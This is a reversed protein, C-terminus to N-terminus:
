GIALAARAYAAESFLLPMNGLLGPNQRADGAESFLGTMGRCAEARKLVSAAREPGDLMQWAQALWFTCMLFAGERDGMPQDPRGPTEEPVFRHVLGNLKLVKDIREVTARVRRDTPPLFGMLPILLATADLADSDYRQRFADVKGSWGKELVEAHIEDRAAHWGAPPYRGTLEAISLARDLAVWNMVKTAVFHQSPMLEWTGADKEHWNEAIFEACRRVLEWHADSLRGGSRLYILACDALFGFSDMEQMQYVPNGMRVPQCDRYGSVDQREDKPTKTGGDVRYIVQLPMQTKDDTEPSLREVVWDLFRGAPEPKGLQALLSVAISGDRIWCYRYDYNYSGPVREPLSTTPAGIVAGTPAYTCLHVMIAALRIDEARSGPCALAASWGTWYAETRELAARASEISWRGAEEANDLVAWIEDGAKLDIILHASDRGSGVHLEHSCWLGLDFARTQLRLASDVEEIVAATRFDERPEIRHVVTRTGSLCRLRRVMTRRAAQDLGRDDEPWLMCDTLELVADATEWRPRSSPPGTSM